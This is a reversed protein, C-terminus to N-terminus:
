HRGLWNAFRVTNVSVTAAGVVTLIFQLITMNIIM